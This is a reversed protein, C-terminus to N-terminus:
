NILLNYLHSVAPGLLRGLVGSIALLIVIVFGWRERLSIEYAWRRPLLGMLMHGGDLPPIPLLNFVGLAINVQVSAVTMYILPIIVYARLSSAGMGTAALELLNLALASLVALLFNSAPGAASVLAMGRAPNKFYRPDVPVPKAWGVMQTVVFVLLGLPDLHKIPNLSLRGEMRATPDGLLAAAAGHSVEHVTVAMLMPPAYIALKLAFQGLDEFFM